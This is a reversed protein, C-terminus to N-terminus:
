VPFVKTGRAGIKWRQELVLEVGLEPQSPTQTIVKCRPCVSEVCATLGCPVAPVSGTGAATVLPLDEAAAGRWTHSGSQIVQWLLLQVQLVSSRVWGSLPDRWCCEDVLEGEETLFSTTILSLGELLKKRGELVSLSARALVPLNKSSKIGENQKSCRGM